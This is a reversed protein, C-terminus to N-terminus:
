RRRLATLFRGYVVTATTALLALSDGNNDGVSRLGPDKTREASRSMTMSQGVEWLYTCYLM